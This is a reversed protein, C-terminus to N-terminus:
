AATPQPKPAACLEFGEKLLGDDIKRGIFVMQSRRTENPRWDRGESGMFHDHVGQSQWFM